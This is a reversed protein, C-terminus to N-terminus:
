AAATCELLKMYFCVIVLVLKKKTANHNSKTHLTSSMPITKQKKETQM